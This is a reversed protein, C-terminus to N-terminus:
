FPGVDPTADRNAPTYNTYNGILGLYSNTITRWELGEIGWGEILAQLDAGKNKGVTGVTLRLNNNNVSTQANTYTTIGLNALVTILTDNTSIGVGKARMQAMTIGGGSANSYPYQSGGSYLVNNNYDNDIETFTNKTWTGGYSETLVM